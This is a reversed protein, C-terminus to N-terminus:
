EDQQPAPMHPALPCGRATLGDIVGRRDAAPRNQSAKWKGMIRTLPIELGVIGRLQAAVFADPADSVAWPTDFGAEFGDTLRGVQALLWDADEIVRPVGRVQVMLYNWTPVVRGHEAKSAYWGPSVYAQPGQFVALVEGGAAEADRLAAIQGNARALHATLVGRDADLLMPVANALPAAGGTVLLALPHAAILGALAEPRSEAFAPPVYM